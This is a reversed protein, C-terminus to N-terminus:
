NTIFITNNPQFSWFYVLFLGPIAWKSFIVFKTLSTKTANALSLVLRFGKRFLPINFFNFLWIWWREERPSMEFVQLIFCSQYKKGPIEIKFFTSWSKRLWNFSSPTPLHRQYTFSTLWAKQRSRPPKQLLLCADNYFLEEAEISTGWSKLHERLNGTQQFGSVNLLGMPKKLM